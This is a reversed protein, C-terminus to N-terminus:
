HRSIVLGFSCGFNDLERRPDLDLGPVLCKPVAGFGYLEFSNKLSASGLSNPQFNRLVEKSVWYKGQHVQGKRSFGQYLSQSPCGRTGKQSRVLDPAEEYPGMPHKKPFM